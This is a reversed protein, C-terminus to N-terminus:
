CDEFEANQLHEVSSYSLECCSHKHAPGVSCQTALKNLSDQLLLACSCLPGANLVEQVWEWSGWLFLVLLLLYPSTGRWVDAHSKEAATVVWPATAREWPFETVGAHPTKVEQLFSLTQYFCPFLNGPFCLTTEGKPRLFKLPFGNLVLSKKRKQVKSARLTPTWNPALSDTSLQGRHIKNGNSCHWPDWKSATFYTVKNCHAPPWLQSVPPEVWYHPTNGPFSGRAESM